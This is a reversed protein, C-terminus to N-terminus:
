APEVRVLSDDNARFIPELPVGFQAAMETLYRSWQRDTPSIAGRGPRSLLLAVTTGAVAENLVSQLASMLNKMIRSEPLPGIPVHSLVKTLRRDPGVLALWLRM